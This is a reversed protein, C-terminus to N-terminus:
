VETLWRSLTVAENKEHNWVIWGDKESVDKIRGWVIRQYLGLYETESWRQEYPGEATPFLAISWQGKEGDALGLEWPIWSSDKSNTTVFLVFRSCSKIAGRLIDATEPNPTNPLRDDESDVYVRGGHNQLVSIVAPLHEKDKSSHSVFVTKGVKSSSAEKLLVAIQLERNFRSLDGFTAFQPM